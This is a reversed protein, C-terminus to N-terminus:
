YWAVVAAAGINKQKLLLALQPFFTPLFFLFPHVCHLALSFLINYQFFEWMKELALFFAPLQVCFFIYKKSSHFICPPPATTTISSKDSMMKFLCKACQLMGNSLTVLVANFFCSPVTDKKERSTSDSLLILMDGEKNWGVRKLITSPSPFRYRRRRHFLYCLFQFKKRTQRTAM